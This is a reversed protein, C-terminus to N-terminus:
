AALQNMEKIEEDSLLMIGSGQSIRHILVDHREIEDLTTKLAAIGEVSPLEVRYQAGDPFRKESSPLEYIDSGPYGHQRLLNKTIEVNSRRMEHININAAILKSVGYEERNLMGSFQDVAQNIAEQSPADTLLELASHVLGFGAVIHRSSNGTGNFACVGGQEDCTNVALQKEFYKHETKNIM